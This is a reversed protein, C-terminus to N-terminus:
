TIFLLPRFLHWQETTDHKAEPLSGLLNLYWQYAGNDRMVSSKVMDSTEVSM